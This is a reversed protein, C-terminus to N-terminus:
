GSAHALAGVVMHAAAAAVLMKLLFHKAPMM